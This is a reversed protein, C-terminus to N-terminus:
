ENKMMFTSYHLTIGDGEYGEYLMNEIFKDLVWKEEISLEFDFYERLEKYLVEQAKSLDYSTLIDKDCKRIIENIKKKMEEILFEEDSMFATYYAKNTNRLADAQKEVNKEHASLANEDNLMIMAEKRIAVVLDSIAKKKEDEVMDLTLKFIATAHTSIASAASAHNHIMAARASM